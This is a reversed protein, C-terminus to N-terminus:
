SHGCVKFGYGQALSDVTTHNRPIQQAVSAIASTDDSQFAAALQDTLSIQGAVAALYNGVAAHDPAPPTLARLRDLQPRALASEERLATVVAARHAATDTREEDNVAAAVNSAPQKLLANAQRCIRDARAIFQAKTPEASAKPPTTPPATNQTAPV